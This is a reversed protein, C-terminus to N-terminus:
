DAWAQSLNQTLLAVLDAANLFCPAFEPTLEGAGIIAIKLEKNDVM